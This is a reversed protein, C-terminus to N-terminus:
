YVFRDFVDNNTKGHPMTNMALIYRPESSKHSKTSHEVWAPFVLFTGEEFESEWHTNLVHSKQNVQNDLLRPVINTIFKQNFFTTGPSDKGGQLYYVGALFTNAHFHRHHSVGLANHRSAWLSTIQVDGAFGFYEMSQEVSTKMFDKLENFIPIKHLNPSTMDVTHGVERTNVYVDESRLFDLIISKQANHNPNVFRFVPTSFLNITEM